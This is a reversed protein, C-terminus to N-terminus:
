YVMELGKNLGFYDRSASVCSVDFNNRCTGSTLIESTEKFIDEGEDSLGFFACKKAM